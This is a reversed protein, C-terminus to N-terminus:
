QKFGPSASYGYDPVNNTSFSHSSSSLRRRKPMQGLYEKSEVAESSKDIWNGTSEDESEEDKSDDEEGMIDEDSSTNEDVEINGHYQRYHPDIFSKSKRLNYPDFPFLSHLLVPNFGGTPNTVNSAAGSVMPLHLRENKQIITECYALQFYKAVTSFNRVVAPLCFRLPNLHSTVIKQLGLKSLM